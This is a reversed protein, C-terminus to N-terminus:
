YWKNNSIGINTISYGLAGFVANTRDVHCSFLPLSGNQLGVVFKQAGPISKFELYVIFGNNDRANLSKIYFGQNFPIETPDTESM